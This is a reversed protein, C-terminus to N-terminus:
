GAGLARLVDKTTPENRMQDRVWAGNTAREVADVAREFLELADQDHWLMEAFRTANRQADRSNPAGVQAGIGLHRAAMLIQWRGPKSEADLQQNRWLFELKYHAYAAANYLELGHDANFIQDGLQAM